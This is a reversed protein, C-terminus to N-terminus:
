DAALSRRECSMELKRVETPNVVGVLDRKVTGGIPRETFIDGHAEASVAPVYSVDSVRVIEIRQRICEIFKKGRIIPWSEDDDIAMDSIARRMLLVGVGRMALSQAFIFDLQHFLEIAPRLICM